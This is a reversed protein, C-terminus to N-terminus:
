TDFVHREWTINKRPTCYTNFKEVIKDVKNKDDENEWSFTNYVELAELSAVHLFTAAQVKANKDTLGSALSFVEFRQKWRRWNDSISHGELNLPEPPTLKEM